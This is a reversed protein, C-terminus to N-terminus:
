SKTLEKVKWLRLGGSQTMAMDVALTAEEFYWKYEGRSAVVGM